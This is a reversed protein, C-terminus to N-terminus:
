VKINIHGGQESEEENPDEPAPSKKEQKEKHPDGAMQRKREQEEKIKAEESEKANKVKEKLLRQEENLQLEFYKQQMDQHQQHTQQVREMANSQLIVQQADIARLMPEGRELPHEM